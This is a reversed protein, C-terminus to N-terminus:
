DMPLLPEGERVPIVGEDEGLPTMLTDRAGEWDLGVREGVVDKPSEPLPVMEMDGLTDGEVETHPLVERDGKPENVGVNLMLPLTLRPPAVGVAQLLPLLSPV